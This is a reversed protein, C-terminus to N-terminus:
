KKVLLSLKKMPNERKKKVKKVIEKRKERRGERNLTRQLDKFNSHGGLKKLQHLENNVIEEAALGQELLYDKYHQKKVKHSHKRKMRKLKKQVAPSSYFPSLWWLFPKEQPPLHLSEELLEEIRVRRKYYSYLVVVAFIFFCVWFITYGSM